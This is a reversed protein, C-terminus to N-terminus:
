FPDFFTENLTYKPIETPDLFTENLSYKPIETPDFKISQNELQLEQSPSKLSDQLTLSQEIKSNLYNKENSHLLNQQNRPICPIQLIDSISTTASFCELYRQKWSRTNELQPFELSITPGEMPIIDFGHHRFNTNVSNPKIDMFASLIKSNVLFHRHDKRWIVGVINVTEPFILTYQLCYWVKLSFKIKGKFENENCIFKKLEKLNPPVLNM